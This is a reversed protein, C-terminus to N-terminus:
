LNIDEYIDSLPANLSISQFEAIAKPTYTQLLWLGNPQRRFTEIRQQKTNILSYEELSPLTQYDNFKDGRDFAETSDSLVEIILKPYQKYTSTQRDRLDCTVFLDPYYFRNRQELRIKIDTFYTRCPQGQLHNRLLTYLNGVLTNHDDTTEAMAYIQGDFFEHKIESKEELALYAENTVWDASNM